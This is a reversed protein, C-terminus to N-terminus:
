GAPKFTFIIWAGMGIFALYVILLLIMVPKRVARPAYDHLVMRAGNMGHTFGLALLVFDYARWFPQRWRFAIVAFNITDVQIYFHMYLFHFVAMLILLLGSLRMFLWAYLEFRSRPQVAVGRRSIMQTAM